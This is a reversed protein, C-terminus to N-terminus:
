GDPRPIPESIWYSGDLSVGVTFGTPKIPKATFSLIDACPAIPTTTINIVVGNADIAALQDGKGYISSVNNFALYKGQDALAVTIFPIILFIRTLYAMM